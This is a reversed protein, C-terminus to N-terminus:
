RRSPQCAGDSIAFEFAQTAGPTVYGIPCVTEAGGSLELLVSGAGECRVPVKARVADQHRALELRQGCLRLEASLIANEPDHIIFENETATCSAGLLALM